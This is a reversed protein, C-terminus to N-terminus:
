DPRSSGTGPQNQVSMGVFQNTGHRNLLLLINGQAAAQKLEAAAEEPNKVPKQDVSMIVDGPEIGLSAAPSDNEVKTVVAGEVEKPIRYERRLNQDISSLQLGLSTTSAGKEDSPTGPNASAQQEQQPMEATSASLTMEKGGRRVQLDLKQGPPMAAVLRPLDHVTKVPQGNATLIVDGPKLGAKAAPSNPTVTAVLAGTPEDPNMGLSKAITPTIGQIAVGLWGRTVHGSERLQAVVSKATNSPVAFGIGVSGGSPSYIATNIGIVEGSLNFTPGGSNGRNIPADLQIFDDYPGENINRGLASIIGATVTGGLAFPNGVAVVWDGVKAEGSDGWTVFPLKDKTDIKILAIDTKEDRGIVKAPHRSNDQFIVTIKESNGVVHNNTVIYGAPDIIFGSGLAMVEHGTQPMGRNEFFRRLLDDFPTSQSSEEASQDGSAAAESSLRASISVVAPLVHEVLPSLSPLNVASQKQVQATINKDGSHNQEQAQQAPNHARDQASALPPALLLALAAAGAILGTRTMGPLAGTDSGPDLHQRYRM